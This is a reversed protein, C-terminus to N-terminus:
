ASELAHFVDCNAPLGQIHARHWLAYFLLSWAAFGPRREAAHRFLHEVRDPRAIEAVGPSRAVLPALRAGQAAIWGAVPM